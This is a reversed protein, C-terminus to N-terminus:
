APTIRHDGATTRVVIDVMVADMMPSRRVPRVPAARGTGPSV